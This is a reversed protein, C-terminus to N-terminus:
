PKMQKHQFRLRDFLKLQDLLTVQKNCSPHHNLLLPHAALALRHLPAERLASVQATQFSLIVVCSLNHLLIFPCGLPIQSPACKFTM